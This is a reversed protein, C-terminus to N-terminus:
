KKKPSFLKDLEGDYTDDIVYAKIKAPNNDVWSAEELDVTDAFYYEDEYRVIEGISRRFIENETCLSVSIKEDDVTLKIEIEANHDFDCNKLVRGLEESVDSYYVSKETNLKVIVNDYPDEKCSKLYEDYKSELCYYLPTSDESKHLIIVDNNACGAVSYIGAGFFLKDFLTSGEVQAQKVIIDSLECYADDFELPVYRKEFLTLSAYDDEVVCDPSGFLQNHFVFGVLVILLTFLVLLVGSILKRKGNKIM